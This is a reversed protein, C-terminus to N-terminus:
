LLFNIRIYKLKLILLHWIKKLWILEGNILNIAYYKAITDAVILMQNNAAFYLIPNNKKESKSYINNKWILKSNQNFNLITGKDDFFILSNKKTILLEPQFFVFQDIKSFKYKSIKKLSGDFYIIYNNNTLNNIFSKEKINNNLKIKLQKNFEKEYAKKEEFIKKEKVKNETKLKETKSWLGTKTDLSCNSILLFIFLFYFIKNM